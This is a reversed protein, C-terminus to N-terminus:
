EILIKFIPATGNNNVVKIFYLGPPVPPLLFCNSNTPVASLTSSNQGMSEVLVVSVPYNALGFDICVFSHAPVPYPPTFTQKDTTNTENMGTVTDVGSVTNNGTTTGTTTYNVGINQTFYAPCGKSDSVQLYVNYNGPSSYHTQPAALGSISANIGSFTWSYHLSGLVYGTLSVSFSIDSTDTPSHNFGSAPLNHVALRQITTDKKRSNGYAVLSVNYTGYQSYTHVPSTITSTVGDGFNWLYAVANSSSTNTFWITKEGSCSDSPSYEFSSVVSITDKVLMPIILTSTLTGNYASLSVNYTGPQSYIHSPNIGTSTNNVGTITDGFDWSYREANVSLNQFTVTDGEVPSLPYYGFLAQPQFYTKNDVYQISSTIAVGALVQQSVVLVPYKKDLSFWQYEISHLTDSPIAVGAVTFMELSALETKIRLCNTFSGYPTTLSGWGDVTNRRHQWHNYTAIAPIVVNFASTSSDKNGYVMPFTYVVDPSTYVPKIAFQTGNFGLVGSEANISLASTSKKYYTNIESLSFTAINISTNNTSALNVNNANFIYPFQIKTFGTATPAAFIQNTQSIGTLGPFSWVMNEGTAAFDITSIPNASTLYFTDKASAYNTSTVTVQAFTSCVALFIFLGIAFIRKM